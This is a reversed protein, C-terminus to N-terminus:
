GVSPLRQALCIWDWPGKDNGSRPRDLGERSWPSVVRGVRKVQFGQGSVLSILEDRRYYKQQKGDADVVGDISTTSKVGKVGRRIHDQIMEESELSPVVILAFGAPKTVTALSLWQAKRVVANASTIVNLCVTLDARAGIRKAARAVDMTLWEIGAVAACREKAQAIARAAFEVAVIEKFRGGFRLIFSGIGCGLDVLVPEKPMPRAAGVFRRLQDNTEESVVDCVLEEFDEALENWAARDM